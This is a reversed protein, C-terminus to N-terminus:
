VKLHKRISFFSGILGIGVGIGLGIPIIISFVMSEPAFSINRAFVGFKSVILDILKSYIAVLIILPIISGILGIMVGEIVFPARVFSNTSGILKMIKIEEKRVSIGIMVTNSILFVGVGLLIIILAISAYGLLRELNTLTAKAKKSHKVKRVGAIKKADKSFSDQHKINKLYVTYSASNALPNDKEFGSALEPDEKFYDKKFDKWAKDASTFKISKVRKDQKITEGIKDIDTQSIGNNFFVTVGVQQELKKEMYNVNIIIAFIVSILFICAAVTGISAISYLKNRKINVLGQNFCYGASKASM